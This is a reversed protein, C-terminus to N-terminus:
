ANLRECLSQHDEIVQDAYEQSIKLIRQSETSLLSAMSREFDHSRKDVRGHACALSAACASVYDIIAQDASQQTLVLQDPDVGLRTHHRSRVLWHRDHYIVEDLVIDPRRAMRRQCDLTLHAPNLQNVPSLDPFYEILAAQRQQKVEVIHSQNFREINAEGKPGVLLYYRELELSGTGAGIRRVIDLIEDDVYPRFHQTLESLVAKDLRGFREPIDKFRYGEVTAQSWKGVSSKEVFKKGGPSRKLAKKHFRYLFHSKDFRAVPEDLKINSGLISECTSLYQNLFAEVAKAGLSEKLPIRIKPLLNDSQYKGSLLGQLYEEVLFISVCFRALDFMAHAEAADDFDNPGWVVKNGYSGEETFFGFNTFHCDGMIRTLPPQYFREPFKLQAKAIDQYFLAASGRLFQFASATMKVHKKLPSSDKPNPVQGDVKALMEAVQQWRKNGKNM